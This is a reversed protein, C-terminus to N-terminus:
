RRKGIKGLIVMDIMGHYIMEICGDRGKQKMGERRGEREGEREGIEGRGEGKGRKRGKGEEGRRGLEQWNRGM